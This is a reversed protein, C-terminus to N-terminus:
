KTPKLTIPIILKGDKRPNTAPFGAESLNIPIIRSSIFDSNELKTSYCLCRDLVIVKGANGSSVPEEDRDLYFNFLLNTEIWYM